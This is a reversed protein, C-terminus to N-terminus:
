PQEGGIVRKVVDGAMNGTAEQVSSVANRAAGQARDLLTDRAEGMWENERETEPLALGLAAGLVVAGAGVMLPNENLMRQLENQARRGTRRVAATTESAYEQAKEGGRRATDRASPADETWSETRDDWYDRDADQRRGSQSTTLWTL